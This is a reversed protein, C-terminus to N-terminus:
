LWILEDLLEKAIDNIYINSYQVEKKRDFPVYFSASQGCHSVTLVLLLGMWFVSGSQRHSVYKGKVANLSMKPASTRLNVLLRSFM